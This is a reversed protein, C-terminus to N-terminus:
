SRGLAAKIGKDVAGKIFFNADVSLTQTSPNYAAGVTVGHGHVSFTAAGTADPVGEAISTSGDAVLKSKMDQIQQPSVNQYTLM